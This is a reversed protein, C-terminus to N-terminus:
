PAGEGRQDAPHTVVTIPGVDQHAAASMQRSLQNAAALWSDLVPALSRLRAESLPLDAAAALAAARSEIPDPM